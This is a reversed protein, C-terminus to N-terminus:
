LIIDTVIDCFSSVLIIYCAFFECSVGTNYLTIVVGYLNKIMNQRKFNYDDTDYECM